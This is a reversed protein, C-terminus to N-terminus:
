NLSHTIRAARCIERVPYRFDVHEQAFWLVYTKWDTM